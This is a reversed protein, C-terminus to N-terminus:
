HTVILRSKHNTIQLKRNTIRATAYLRQLKLVTQISFSKFIM